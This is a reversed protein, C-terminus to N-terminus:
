HGFELLSRRHVRLGGGPRRTWSSRPRAATSCCTFLRNNRYSQGGSENRMQSRWSELMRDMSASRMRESGTLPCSTTPGLTRNPAIM